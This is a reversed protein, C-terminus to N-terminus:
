REVQRGVVVFHPSQDAGPGLLRWHEHDPQSCVPVVELSYGGALVLRFGGVEDAEVSRIAAPKRHHKDLWARVREECRSPDRNPNFTEDDERDSPPYRVDVSGVVVGNPGLIRWPAQVHLRFTGIQVREKRRNIIELREGIDFMEMDAARWADWVPMGVLAALAAQVREKLSVRKRM